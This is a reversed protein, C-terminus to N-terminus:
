GWKGARVCVILSWSEIRRSQARLEVRGSCRARRSGCGRRVDPKTPGILGRGGGGHRPLRRRAQHFGDLVIRAEGCGAHAQALHDLEALVGRDTRIGRPSSLQANGIGTVAVIINMPQCKREPVRKRADCNTASSSGMRSACLTWSSLLRGSPRPSIGEMCLTRSQYACDKSTLSCGCM